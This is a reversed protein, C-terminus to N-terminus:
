QTLPNGIASTSRTLTGFTKPLVGGSLSYFEKLIEVQLDRDARMTLRWTSSQGELPFYKRSPLGNKNGLFQAASYKTDSYIGVSNSRPVTIRISKRLNGSRYLTPTSSGIKKAYTPSYRSWTNGRYTSNGAGFTSQSMEKFRNAASVLVKRRGSNGIAVNIRKIEPTITDLLRKVQFRFSINDLM